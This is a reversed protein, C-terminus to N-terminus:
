TSHSCLIFSHFMSEEGTDDILPVFSMCRHIQKLRFPVPSTGQYVKLWRLMEYVLFSLDLSFIHSALAVCGFTQQQLDPSM